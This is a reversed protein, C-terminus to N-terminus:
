MGEQNRNKAITIQNPAGKREATTNTPTKDDREKANSIRNLAKKHAEEMTNNIADM